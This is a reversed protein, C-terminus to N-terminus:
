RVYTKKFLHRAYRILLCELHSGGGGAKLIDKHLILVDQVTFIFLATRLNNVNFLLQDNPVFTTNSFQETRKVGKPLRKSSFLVKEETIGFLQVMQALNYRHQLLKLKGKLADEPSQEPKEIREM